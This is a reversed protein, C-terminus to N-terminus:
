VIDGFAIRKIGPQFYDLKSNMIVDTNARVIEVGERIQRELPTKHYKIIDLRFKTEENNHHEKRHKAFANSQHKHHERIAELHQKGRVYGSRSTEGIYVTETGMDKCTMCQGKYVVNERDCNGRGGTTHVFCNSRGCNDSEKLGPLLNAIKIGAKEIVKISIGGESKQKEAIQKLSKALEGNPTPPCFLVTDHPKYWSTKARRKTKMRQEKDFGKPRYLPCIGNEDREM